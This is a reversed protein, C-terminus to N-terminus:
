NERIRIKMGLSAKEPPPVLHTCQPGAFRHPDSRCPVLHTCQPCSFRHPDCRGIQVQFGCGM